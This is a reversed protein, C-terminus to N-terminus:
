NATHHRQDPRDAAIRQHEAAGARHQAVKRFAKEGAEIGGHRRAVQGFDDDRKELHRERDDRRSQDDARKRLAHRKGEHEGEGRKPEEDDIDGDGVPNPAATPESREAREIEGAADDHM